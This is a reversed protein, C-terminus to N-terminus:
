GDTRVDFSEVGRAWSQRRTGRGSSGTADLSRARNLCRRSSGIAMVQQPTKCAALCASLVGWMAGCFPLWIRPPVVQLILNNPWLGVIYGATFMSNVQNFQKGRFNLDEKMGTLYANNFNARNLYNSLFLLTCFTMVVLDIKRVLRRELATPPAEGLFFVRVQHLKGM